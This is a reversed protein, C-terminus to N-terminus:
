LFGHCWLVAPRPVLADHPVALRCPVGARVHATTTIRMLFTYAM